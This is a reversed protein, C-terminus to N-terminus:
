LFIRTFIWSYDSPEGNRLGGPRGVSIEAGVVSFVACHLRFRYDRCARDPTTDRWEMGSVRSDYFGVLNGTFRIKDAAGRNRFTM